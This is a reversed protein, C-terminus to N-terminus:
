GTFTPSFQEGAVLLNSLDYCDERCKEIRMGAECSYLSVVRLLQLKYGKLELCLVHIKILVAQGTM